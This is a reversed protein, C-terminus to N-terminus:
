EDLKHPPIVVEVRRSSDSENGSAKVLQQPIFYDITDGRVTSGDQELQAGQRLQVREETRYFEIIEGWAHMLASEPKPQQQLHAPSGEAVIKDGETEIRYITIQDAEIRMTGQNM